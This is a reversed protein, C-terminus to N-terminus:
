LFLEQVPEEVTTASWWSELLLAMRYGAKVVQQEAIKVGQAMYEASPTTGETIGAYVYTKALEFSEDDWTTYANNIGNGFSSL